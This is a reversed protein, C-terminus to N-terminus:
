LSASPPLQGRNTTRRSQVAGLLARWFEEERDLCLRIRCFHANPLRWALGSLNFVDKETFIVGEARSATAAAALADVEALSYRHHDPFVRQGVIQFGWERLDHLFASPNGIGCFAFLKALHPDFPKPASPRSEDSTAVSGPVPLVAELETRAYFVPAASDRRVAAEVAPSHISRTIVIIDARALATRPERLRGAPLLHGGGFPDTADLLVIDADRALRLHQFGDDLLFWEIGKAALEKGRALRDAGVGFAVRNGLRSHLLRVEDSTSKGADGDPSAQGQYGRTLIGVRKGEAALNQALWLVMPTKGTGGVTLNGVSVVIGDLRHQKFIGKRYARARLHALGGYPLSLPWLISGRLSM